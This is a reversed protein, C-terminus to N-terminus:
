LIHQPPVQVDREDDSVIVPHRPTIVGWRFEWICTPYGLVIKPHFGVGFFPRFMQPNKISQISFGTSGLNCCSEMGFSGHINYKGVNPQNKHYIYTSVGYMSPIPCSEMFHSTVFPSPWTLPKTFYYPRYCSLEPDVQCCGVTSPVKEM